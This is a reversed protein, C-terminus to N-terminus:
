TFEGSRQAAEALDLAAMRQRLAAVFGDDDGEFAKLVEPSGSYREVVDRNLRPCRGIAAEGKFVAGAFALCTKKGCERCNSKDLFQFIEMANKPRPM